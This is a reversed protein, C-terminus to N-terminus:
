SGTVRVAGTVPVVSIQASRNPGTFTAAYAALAAGEFNFEMQTHTVSVTEQQVFTRAEDVAAAGGGDLRRYITYGTAAGGSSTFEVYHNDGTSIARRRTQTLDSALRRADSQSAFNKLPNTGFRTMAVATFVALLLLVALLELLTAGASRRPAATAM